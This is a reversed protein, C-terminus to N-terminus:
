TYSVKEAAHQDSDVLHVSEGFRFYQIELNNGDRCAQFRAASKEKMNGNHGGISEEELICEIM